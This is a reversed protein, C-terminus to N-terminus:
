PPTKRYIEFIKQWDKQMEEAMRKEFRIKQASKEGHPEKREIKQGPRWPCLDWDGLELDERKEPPRKLRLETEECYWYYGSDLRPLWPADVRYGVCSDGNREWVYQVLGSIVTCERGVHDPHDVSSIIECVDGVKFKSM